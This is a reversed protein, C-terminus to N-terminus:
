CSINIFKITQEGTKNEIKGKEMATKMARKLAPANIEGLNYKSKIHQVLKARSVGSRSNLDQISEILMTIYPPHTPKNSVKKALIEQRYLTNEM